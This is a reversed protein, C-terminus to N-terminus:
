RIVDQDNYYRLVVCYEGTQPLQPIFLGASSTTSLIAYIIIYLVYYNITIIFLWTISIQM